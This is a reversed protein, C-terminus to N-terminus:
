PGVEIVTTQTQTIKIARFGEVVGPGAGTIHIENSYDSERSMDDYATIVLYGDPINHITYQIPDTNQATIDIPSAGETAQTGNYPPGSDVDYYIKYGAIDPQTPANWQLTVDMAHSTAIVVLLFLLAALIPAWNRVLREM